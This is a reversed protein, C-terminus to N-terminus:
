IITSCSWLKHVVTKLKTPSICFIKASEGLSHCASVSPHLINKCSRYAFQVLNAGGPDDPHDFDVGSGNDDDTNDDDVRKSTIVEFIPINIFAKRKLSRFLRKNATPLLFNFSYFHWIM